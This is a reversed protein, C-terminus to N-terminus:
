AEREALVHGQDPALKEGCLFLRGNARHVVRAWVAPPLPDDAEEVFRRTQSHQVEEKVGTVLAETREAYGHQRIGIQRAAHARQRLKVIGRLDLLKHVLYQGTLRDLFALTAQDRGTGRHAACVRLRQQVHVAM